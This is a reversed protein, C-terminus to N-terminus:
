SSLHVIVKERIRDIRRYLTKLTIDMRKAIKMREGYDADIYELLLDADHLNKLRRTPFIKPM